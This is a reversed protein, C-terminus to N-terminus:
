PMTGIGISIGSSAASPTTPLGTSSPRLSCRPQETSWTTSHYTNTMVVVACEADPFLLSQSSYGPCIGDREIMLQSPAGEGLNMKFAEDVAPLQQRGFGMALTFERMGGGPKLTQASLITRLNKLVAGPTSSTGNAFQDEACRM